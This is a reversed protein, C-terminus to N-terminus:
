KCPHFFLNQYIDDPSSINNSGLIIQIQNSGYGSDTQLVDQVQKVELLSIGGIVFIVITSNQSPHAESSGKATLGFRGLGQSLLGFGARAISFIPNEIHNL